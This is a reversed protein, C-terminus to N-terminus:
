LSCLNLKKHNPSTRPGTRLCPRQIADLSFSIKWCCSCSLPLVSKQLGKECCSWDVQNLHGGAQQVNARGKPRIAHILIRIAPSLPKSNDLQFKMLGQTMIGRSIQSKICTHIYLNWKYIDILVHCWVKSSLSVHNLVFVKVRQYSCQSQSPM